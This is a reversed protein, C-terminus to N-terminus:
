ILRNPLKMIVYQRQTNADKPMYTLLKAMNEQSRTSPELYKQKSRWPHRFHLFQLLMNRGAFTGLVM